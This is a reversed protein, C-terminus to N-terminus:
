IEYSKIMKGDRQFGVKPRILGQGYPAPVGELSQTPETRIAMKMM